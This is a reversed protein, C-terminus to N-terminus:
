GAQTALLRSYEAKVREYYLETARYLNRAEAKTLRQYTQGGQSKLVGDPRVDYRTTVIHRQGSADLWEEHWIWTREDLCFFERRHGEPVVGFLEGGIKAAVRMLRREIEAERQADNRPFIKPLVPLSSILRM